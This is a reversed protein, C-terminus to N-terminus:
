KRPQQIITPKQIPNKEHTPHPKEHYSQVAAKPFAEGEGTKAGSVIEKTSKKMAKELEEIEKTLTKINKDLDDRKSYLKGLNASISSQEDTGKKIAASKESTTDKCFCAFKEYSAVEKEGEALVQTQLDAMMNIVKNVAAMKAESAAAAAKKDAANSKGEKYEDLTPRQALATAVISVIVPRLVM